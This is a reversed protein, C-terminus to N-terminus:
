EKLEIGKTSLLDKIEQIGKDGIGDIDQIDAERKRALGGVTRINAEALANLTRQSLNLDDIRTKLFETEDEGSEDQEIESATEGSSESPTYELTAEQPEDSGNEGTLAQMQQIMTAISRDLAERPEITGDTEIFLRLRNYDTRDGVRMDEVEYRVRKIPTFVADLKIVGIERDNGEFEEKAVYGLGREVVMEMDLSANKGTLHAIELEPNTITTQGTTEIDGATVTKDGKARLKLTQPEDTDMQIRINKLNLLVTIVDERIGEVSSFENNVGDIKVTTISTGPLSSLIIRRLSNGLTHGYGPYLGNIEYQGFINDESVTKPKSPLVITQDSM